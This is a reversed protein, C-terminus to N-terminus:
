LGARCYARAIHPGDVVSVVWVAIAEAWHEGM